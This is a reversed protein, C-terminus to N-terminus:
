FAGTRLRRRCAFRGTWKTALPRPFPPRPLQRSMFLTKHTQIIARGCIMVVQLRLWPMHAALSGGNVASHDSFRLQGCKRISPRNAAECRM